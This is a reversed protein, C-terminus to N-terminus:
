SVVAWCERCCRVGKVMVENTDFGRKPKKDETIPSPLTIESLRKKRPLAAHGNAGGAGSGNPDEGGGADKEVKMWGVFGEEVIEGRGTRWDAVLLVSCKERRIGMPLGTRPNHNASAGEAPLPSESRTPPPLLLPLPLPTAITGNAAAAIQIVSTATPPLSCVIRGCLRCHHKRNTLSFVSSTKWRTLRRRLVCLVVARLGRRVRLDQM